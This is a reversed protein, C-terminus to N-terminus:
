TNSLGVSGVNVVIAFRTATLGFLVLTEGAANFTATNNTGDFTCGAGLKLTHGVTGGDIQSVVLLRGATPATLTAAIAPTASNLTVYTANPLAGSALMTSPTYVTNDIRTNLAGGQADVYAKIAKQTATAFDSNGALTTDTDLGITALGGISVLKNDIPM